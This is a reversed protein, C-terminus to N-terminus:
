QEGFEKISSSVTSQSGSVNSHSVVARSGSKGGSRHPSRRNVGPVVTPALSSQTSGQMMHCRVCPSKFGLECGDEEGVVVGVSVRELLGVAWGTM